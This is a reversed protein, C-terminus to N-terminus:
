GGTKKLRLTPRKVVDGNDDDDPQPEQVPPRSGPEDELPRPQEMAKRCEDDSPLLMFLDPREARYMIIAAYDVPRKQHVNDIQCTAVREAQTIANAEDIRKIHAQTAVSERHM